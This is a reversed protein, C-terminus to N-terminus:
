KIYEEDIDELDDVDHKITGAPPLPHRLAFCLQDLEPHLTTTSASSSSTTDQLPDVQQQATTETFKTTTHSLLLQCIDHHQSDLAVDVATKGVSNVLSPDARASLLLETTSLNGKSASHHLATYGYQDQANVDAQANLLIGIGSGNYCVAVMLAAFGAKSQINPNAGASILLVPICDDLEHVSM